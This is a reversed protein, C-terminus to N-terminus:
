TSELQQPWNKKLTFSEIFWVFTMSYNRTQYRKTRRNNRILIKNDAHQQQQQQTARM